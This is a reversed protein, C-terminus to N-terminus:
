QRVAKKSTKVLTQAEQRAIEKKRINRLKEETEELDRLFDQKRAAKEAAILWDDSDDENQKSIGEIERRANDRLWTLAGCILSLSKGTGTPSELIVVKGDEIAQYLCTMFELQIDYPQYPHCYDTHSPKM